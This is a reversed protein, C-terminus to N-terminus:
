CSTAHRVKAWVLFHDSGSHRPAVGASSVTLRRVLIWNLAHRRGRFTRSPGEGYPVARGALFRRECHGPGDNM